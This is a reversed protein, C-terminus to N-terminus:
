DPLNDFLPMPTWVPHIRDLMEEFKAWNDEALEMLTVVSGLHQLLKPHGTDPTLWNYHKNKRRGNVVPNKRRLEDLVAPALRAYVINNTLHGFYRPLQLNESYPLGRLRCLGKYYALPFLRVYNQIEKAVFRELIKALADRARADQFGTAEDVLATIGVEALGRSMIDANVVVIAQRVGRIVGADRARLWVNCVKPLLEARMGKHLTGGSAGETPRYWIPKQLVSALELDIFPKLNKNAVFLPLQAGGDSAEKARTHVAGSRYLGLANVVGTESLVRTGNELVACPIELTRNAQEDDGAGITPLTIKITGTHPANLVEGIKGAKLLRAEIAKKAIERRREPTLSLARAKGGKSAMETPTMEESM